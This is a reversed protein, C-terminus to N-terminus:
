GLARVIADAIRLTATRATRSVGTVNIYAHILGPARDLTVPVGAEELRRAYAIGEDRLPDFGAVAVFAPATGSLDPTHLPSVRPDTRQARDPVYRDKYWEMHTRTLFFGEGFEHYSASEGALDTAPFILAQLAPTVAAGRLGNSLVASINGGASDGAVVIRSPDIGWGRANAVAFEWAAHADEIAAPFPNEPALRYDISLVDVGAHLALFRVPSQTSFRNGLVWGGGHFYVVLGRPTGATARYRTAPITGGPGAIALDEEFAFPAFDEAFLAAELDLHDRGQDVPLDVFDEGPLADLALLAIRIESALREGDANTTPRVDLTDLVRQPLKAFGQLVSRQVRAAIGLEPVRRTIPRDTTTM